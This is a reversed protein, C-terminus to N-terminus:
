CADGEHVVLSLDDVVESSLDRVLRLDVRSLLVTELNVVLVHSAVLAFTGEIGRMNFILTDHDALGKGSLIVLISFNVDDLGNPGESVMVVVM